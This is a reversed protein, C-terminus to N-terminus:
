AADRNGWLDRQKGRRIRPMSITADQEGALAARLRLMEEETAKFVQVWKRSDTDWRLPTFAAWFAEWNLEGALSKPAIMWDVIGAYLEPDFVTRSGRNRAYHEPLVAYNNRLTDYSDNTMEEAFGWDGLLGGFHWAVLSREGHPGTLGRYLSRPKRCEALTAPIGPVRLVHRAVEHIVRAWIARISADTRNGPSVLTQEGGPGNRVVAYRKSPLSAKESATHDSVFVAFREGEGTLEGNFDLQANPAILGAKQLRDPRVETWYRFFLKMDVIGPSLTWQRERISKRKTTIKLRVSPCDDGWFRTSVGSFGVWHGQSDIIPEPIIHAGAISGAYNKCRLGDAAIVAVVSYEELAVYLREQLILMRHSGNRHRPDCLHEALIRDAEEVKRRLHWLAVCALQGFNLPINRKDIRGSSPSVENTSSMHGILDKHAAELLSWETSNQRAMIPKLVRLAVYKLMCVDNFASDPYHKARGERVAPPLTLTSRAIRNPLSADLTYHLLCLWSETEATGIAYRSVRGSAPRELARAPAETLWLDSFSLTAPDIKERIMTAIIRSVAGVVKDEYHPQRPIALNAGRELYTALADGFDPALVSILDVMSRRSPNDLVHRLRQQEEPALRDFATQLLGDLDELSGIGWERDMRAATCAPLHEGALGLARRARRYAVLGAKLNGKKKRVTREGEETGDWYDQRAWDLIETSDSPLDEPRLIDRAAAAKALRHLDALTTKKSRGGASWGGLGLLAQALTRWAPEFMSPTIRIWNRKAVDRGLITSAFLRADSVAVRKSSASLHEAGHWVHDDLDLLLPSIDVTDLASGCKGSAHAVGFEVRSIVQNARTKDLSRMAGSVAGKSRDPIRGDEAARLFEEKAEAFTMNKTRELSMTRRGRSQSGGRPIGEGPAWWVTDRTKQLIGDAIQRLHHM